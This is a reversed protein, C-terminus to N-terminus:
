QGVAVGRITMAGTRWRLLPRFRLTHQGSDLGHALLTRSSRQETASMDVPPYEIGDIWVGLLRAGPAVDHLLAVTSGSFEVEVSADPSESTMAMGEDAHIIKEWEGRFTFVDSDARITRTLKAEARTTEQSNLPVQPLSNFAGAVDVGTGRGLLRRGDLRVCYACALPREIFHHLDDWSFAVQIDDDGDEAVVVFLDELLEVMEPNRGEVGTGRPETWTRGHDSSILVVIPWRKEKDSKRCAAVMWRGGALEHFGQRSFRERGDIEVRIRDGEAVLCLAYWRNAELPATVHGTGAYDSRGDLVKEVRLDGHVPRLVLRYFNEADCYRFVLGCHSTGVPFRVAARFQFDDFTGGDLLLNNYGREPGHSPQYLVFDRRASAAVGQEDTAPEGAPEEAVAWIPMALMLVAPLVLKTTM